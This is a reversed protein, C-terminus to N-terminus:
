ANQSSHPTYLHPAFLMFIDPLVFSVTKYLAVYLHFTQVWVSVISLCSFQELSSLFSVSADGSLFLVSCRHKNSKLELFCVSCFALLETCSCLSHLLSIKLSIGDPLLSKLWREHVKMGVTFHKKISKIKLIIKNTHKNYTFKPHQPHSSLVTFSAMKYKTKQTTRKPHYRCSYQWVKTILNHKIM